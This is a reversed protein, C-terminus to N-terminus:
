FLFARQNALINHFADPIPQDDIMAKVWVIIAWILAEDPTESGAIYTVQVVNVGSATEPWAALSNRVIWAPDSEKDLTYNASPVTQLRDSADYYTIASVSQVPGKPLRFSDEFADQSLKWTQPMISRGTYQEVFATGAAILRNIEEDRDTGDVKCHLKAEALTVPYATPATVLTLGM